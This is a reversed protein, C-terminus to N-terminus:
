PVEKQMNIKFSHGHALVGMEDTRHIRLISNCVARWWPKHSVILVAIGNEHAIKTTALVLAIAVERSVGWDPEDLILLPPQQSIRYAILNLKATLLSMEQLLNCLKGIEAERSSRGSFVRLLESRTREILQAYLKEAAHEISCCPEHLLLERERAMTQSIADQFVLRAKGAKEGCRIKAHGSYFVAGSLVKCLLSKGSGNDGLMLCPSRFTDDWSSFFATRPIKLEPSDDGLEVSLKECHIHFSVNEEHNQCVGDLDTGSNDDEGRMVLVTVNTRESIGNILRDFLHRNDASLWSLPSSVVIHRSVGKLVHIKALSLKVSEGGSLTSIPQLLNQSTLGFQEAASIALQNVEDSNEGCAVIAAAQLEQLANQYVFGDIPNSLIYIPRTSPDTSPASPGKFLHIIDKILEVPGAHLRPISVGILQQFRREREEFIDFEETDM